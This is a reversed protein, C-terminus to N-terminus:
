TWAPSDVVRAKIEVLHLRKWTAGFSPEGPSGWGVGLSWLAGWCDGPIGPMESCPCSTAQSPFLRLTAPTGDAGAEVLEVAWKQGRSQSHIRRKELLGKLAELCTYIQTAM